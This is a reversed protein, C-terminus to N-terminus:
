TLTKPNLVQAFSTAEWAWLKLSLRGEVQGQCSSTDVNQHFIRNYHKLSSKGYATRGETGVILNVSDCESDVCSKPCSTYARAGPVTMEFLKTCTVMHVYIM